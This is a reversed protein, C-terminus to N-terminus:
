RRAPMERPSHANGAFDANESHSSPLSGLTATSIALTAIEQPISHLVSSSKKYRPQITIRPRERGEAPNERGPVGPLVARKTSIPSSAWSLAVRRNSSGPSSCIFPLLKSIGKRFFPIGPVHVVPPDISILSSSSSNWRSTGPAMDLFTKLLHELELKEFGAPSRDSWLLVPVGSFGQHAWRIGSHIMGHNTKSISPSCKPRTHLSRLRSGFCNQFCPAFRVSRRM